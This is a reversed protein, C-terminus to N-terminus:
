KLNDLIKFLAANANSGQYNNIIISFVYNKGEKSAHYGAYSKTNKITGSKMKMSNYTPFSEQFEPFWARKQAYLLAQVEAKSSVYNQPSLGSGDAFNIASKKIGKSAWFDKLATISEGYRSDGKRTKGITKLLTEGYLNVSKQMFWYVIKEMAPSKFELITNGKAAYTIKEGNIRQLSTTTTKGTFEIESKKLWNSIEVALQLPPNPMAGAVTTVKKGPLTGNIYAVDSFPATFVFSNDGSGGTEVDNVWKVGVLEPAYSKVLNGTAHIDFQNERWNVGWVGAGYYNGIDDWSWGGPVKQFDFYSDDIVIDGNVKKIGKETLVALLKDKFDDSKKELYRWSGLTPDGNSHIFLNGDLVGDNITGSHSATTTYKFDKGLIDLAAAATFIKQTSASSLGLNPMYEYVPEGAEDAVYFSLQGASMAETKLFQAVASDLKSKVEQASLIQTIFISFVLFYKM